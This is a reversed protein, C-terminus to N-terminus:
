TRIVKGASVASVVGSFAHHLNGLPAPVPNYIGPLEPNLSGLAPGYGIWRGRAVNMLDPNKSNVIASVM